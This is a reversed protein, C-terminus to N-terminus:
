LESLYIVLWTYTTHFLDDSLIASHHDSYQRPEFDQHCCMTCSYHSLIYCSNHAARYFYYSRMREKKCIVIFVLKNFACVKFLCVKM